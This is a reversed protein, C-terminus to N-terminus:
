KKSGTLRPLSNHLPKKLKDLVIQSKKSHKDTQM